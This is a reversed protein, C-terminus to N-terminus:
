KRRMVATTFQANMDVRAHSKEFALFGIDGYDVTSDFRFQWTLRQAEFRRGEGLLAAWLLM